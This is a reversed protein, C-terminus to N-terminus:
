ILDNECQGLLLIFSGVFRCWGICVLCTCFWTVVISTLGSHQTASTCCWWYAPLPLLVGCSKVWPDLRTSVYGTSSLLFDQRIIFAHNILNIWIHKTQMLKKSQTDVVPKTTYIWMWKNRVHTKTIFSRWKWQKLQPKCRSFINAAVRVTSRTQSWTAVFIFNIDNGGDVNKEYPTAFKQDRM